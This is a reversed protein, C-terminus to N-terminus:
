RKVDGGEVMFLSYEKDARELTSELRLKNCDTILIQGFDDGGVLALLKEVRGLDLKDFLDDLLLIPKEGTAEALLRYQALKLAILFSKQQGQSGYKRLPYGGIRFIIDDRHVGATTFQNVIDRERNRLLVETLPMQELESRYEMEVQERDESLTSYYEAVMPQMREIIEKRREYVRTGHEALQMDYIQLMAEDSSMKLFKNREALVTNYRMMSVLYARDLQSIFSNLYRRREEAADMILETDRPSSIVVPFGGVHDAIREYEKGNRKLVKGGKRSFSCNVLEMAGTDTLYSGETVFFEEGHHVSQGDTMTFASKSMSLYHVADLINTKGAGNDGVFCNIGDALTIEAQPLNKFNILLLKKLRM